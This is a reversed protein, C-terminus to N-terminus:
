SGDGPLGLCSSGSTGYSGTRASEVLHAHWYKSGTTISFGLDVRIARYKSPPHQQLVGGAVPPFFAGMALFSESGQSPSEGQYTPISSYLPGPNRAGKKIRHFPFVRFVDCGM